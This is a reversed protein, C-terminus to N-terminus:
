SAAAKEDLVITPWRAQRHDGLEGMGISRLWLVAERLYTAMRRLSEGIFVRLAQVNRKQL